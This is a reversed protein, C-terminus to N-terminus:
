NALAIDWLRKLRGEPPDPDTPTAHDASHHTASHDSADPRRAEPEEAPAPEPTQITRGPGAGLRQLVQVLPQIRDIMNEALAAKATVVRGEAFGERVDTVPVGRGRAIHATMVEYREDVIGQFHKAAEDSLPESPNGEVKYKGASIYTPKVGQKAERESQDVHVMYVGISGVVGAPTSIIEDTQSALHYAASAMMSNAVAVIPKRGRAEFIQQALEQVGYISGGPSDVDFVIAKVDDDQLVENFAAGFLETSTGGSSQMLLNARQAIVGYMPLVAISGARGRSRQSPRAASTSGVRAQIEEPTFIVGDARLQLVEVIAALKELRIAWPQDTVASLVHGYSKLM